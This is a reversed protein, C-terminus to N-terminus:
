RAPPESFRVGEDCPKFLRFAFPDNKSIRVHMERRVHQAPGDRKGLLALPVMQAEQSGDVHASKPFLRRDGVKAKAKDKAVLGPQSGIGARRTVHSDACELEHPAGGVFFAASVAAQPHVHDFVHFDALQHLHGAKARAHGDRVIHNAHAPVAAHAVHNAADRFIHKGGHM